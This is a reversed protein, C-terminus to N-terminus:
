KLLNSVEKFSAGKDYSVLASILKEVDDASVELSNKSVNDSELMWNEIKGVSNLLLAYDSTYSSTQLLPILFEYDTNELKEKSVDQMGKSLISNLNSAVYKTNEQFTEDTNFKNILENESDEDMYEFLTKTADSDMIVYMKNKTDLDWTDIKEIMPMFKENKEQYYEKVNNKTVPYTVISYRIKYVILIELGIIVIFLLFKLPKTIFSRMIRFTKVKLPMQDFKKEPKRVFLLKWWFWIPATIVLFIIRFVNKLKEM